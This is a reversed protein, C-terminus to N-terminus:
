SKSKDTMQRTADFLGKTAAEVAAAGISQESVGLFQTAIAEAAAFRASAAEAELFLNLATQSLGLGEANGTAKRFMEILNARADANNFDM